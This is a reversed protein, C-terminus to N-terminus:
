KHPKKYPHLDYYDYIGKLKNKTIKESPIFRNFEFTIGAMLSFTWLNYRINLYDRGLFAQAFYGVSRHTLPSNIYRLRFSMRRENGNPDYESVNGVVLETDFKLTHQTIAPVMIEGYDQTHHKSFRFPWIRRSLQSKYLFMGLIRGRGYRNEQDQEFEAGPLEGDVRLSLSGSYQQHNKNISSFLVDTQLYNTSFNGSKYDHRIPNTSPQTIYYAGSDQGNSYHVGKVIFTLTRFDGREFDLKQAKEEKTYKYKGLIISKYLGIGLKTNLPLLPSSSAGKTIRWTFEPDIFVASTRYFKNQDDRGKMITFPMSINGELIFGNQGEVDRLPIQQEEYNFFPLISLYMPDRTSNFLVHAMEDRTDHENRKFTGKWIEVAGAYAFPFSAYNIGLTVDPSNSFSLVLKVSEKERITTGITSLPVILLHNGNNEIVKWKVKIKKLQSPHDFSIEKLGAEEPILLDGNNNFFYVVVKSGEFANEHFFPDLQDFLPVEPYYGINNQIFDYRYSNDKLNDFNDSSFVLHAKVKIDGQAKTNFSGFGILVISILLTRMFIANGIKM